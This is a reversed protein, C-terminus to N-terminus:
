KILLMKQTFIKGNYTMQVFYLGSAKRSGNFTATYRGPEKYGDVLVAMRKGIANYVYIKVVGPKALNYQFSTSPNFPNPYNPLLKSKDPAEFEVSIPDYVTEAGDFDIQILKYKYTGAEELDTDIYSYIQKNTTTGKGKIFAIESWIENKQQRQLSFGYNEFESATVWELYPYNKEESKQTIENFSTLTVPLPSNVNDSTGLTFQDGSGLIQDTGDSTVKLNGIPVTFLIQDGVISAGITSVIEFDASSNSRRLLNYNFANTPSFGLGADSFDFGVIINGSLTGTIEIVWERSWRADISPTSGLNEDSDGLEIGDHGAMIYDGDSDLSGNDRLVLGANQAIRHTGDAGRGIGILDNEFAATTFLDGTISIGYKSSLYNEILQRRSTSLEESFVILEYLYGNYDYTTNTSSLDSSSSFGGLIVGDSGTDLTASSSSLETTISSGNVFFNTATVNANDTSGMAVISPDSTSTTHDMVRNGSVRVALGNAGGPDELFLFYGEGAATNPALGFAANTSANTLSTPQVVSIVTRGTSGSIVSPGDLYDSSTTSFDLYANSGSSRYVPNSGFNNQMDANNGSIDRWWEVNEGDSASAGSTNEVQQDAALWLELSSSGDVSGVGAPGTSGINDNDFITLTHTTPSTTGANTAGDITLVITEDSEETGDDYITLNITGETDGSSIVLPSVTDLSYDVGSGSATSAGDVSFTIETDTGNASTLNLTITTTGVSESISSSSLEFSVDPETDDDNITYTHQTNSGLNANSPSSLTVIITESNENILDDNVSITIDTTTNGATITATGSSLRYDTGSGDATGGTVEYNVETDNSNDVNNLEVQLDVSTTSESNSSSTNTFQIKRPNDDDNILYTITSPSVLTAGSAGSLTLIVTESTEVDTDNVFKLKSSSGSTTGSGIVIAEPTFTYDDFETATGTGANSIDVTVNSASEYNLAVNISVNSESEFDGDTGNAFSVERKIAAITIFDGDNFTVSGTEYIDGTTNVLPKFTAGNTFDGDPDIFVGYGTYGSPLTVGALDAKINITQSAVGTHDIRWERGIKQASGTDGNPTESTSFSTSANDHGILAFQGDSFTGAAISLGLIDSYGELHRDSSTTRGIGGVDHPHNTDFSYYDNSISIDYKSSLYNELIQRRTINLEESYVIVEFLYGNYDYQSDKTLDALSSFGGLIVGDSSTNMTVNSSSVQTTMESGNTYFDTDIVDANDASQLGIITPESTSTTYDMVENGSVRLSLGSSSGVGEIFLNYGEGSAVDPALGIASNSSSTTLSTPQLVTVLTRSGTGSIVSSGQLYDSSTTSFDIYANDGSSRYVPNAGDTNQMDKSNGSLDRWWEVSEGDAASGSSTNEVDEDGALWLELSSSGDVSGVGGPGRSGLEDDDNITLTHQSTAGINANTVGDVNIIITEPGEETADEVITFEIDGTTNGATITLPSTTVQTYDSGGGSATSSGNISFTVEVDSGSSASLFMGVNVTTNGETVTSTPNSFSLDPDSENDNITYTHTTNTGLNSNTPNSLEIIITEDAESILDDNVTFDLTETTNGSAISVTGDALTFDTGSGSATGGTVTYDATTTNLGDTTNIEVTISVSTVNESDDSLTSSFQIKRPNDDDNISFEMTTQDGLSTGSVNTLSFDITETLETDVDNVVSLNSSSESTSGASFTITETTFSYDTGSGSASGTGDDVIDVSVSGTSEFSLEITFTPSTTTEFIEETANQFSIDRDVAVVTIYDGDNLTLNEAEYTSGSVNSVPHFTAGDTFDDDSDVYIGYDNFGSPLSFGSLNLQLDIVESAVGTLDVRWERGIKQAKTNGNPQETTSFTTNGGNHGLMAFTGDAFDSAVIQLGIEASYSELYTDSSTTRGIGAVMNGHSGEYSFYDNSITLGYKSALYNEVLQRQTTNLEESFAIIEYIYGNFDYGTDGSTIPDINGGTAFGGILVGISNTNLSAATQSVVTTVESGNAFLRSDTVNENSGSGGSFLTPVSTSTTYDFLKNGSVRLGVGNSGGPEEIFFGYGEGSNDNPALAWASNTTANSISTPMVVTFFTRGTTGTVVSSGDLYASGGSFDIYIEGGSSRFVPYAGFNNTVDKNNGSQDEWTQINDGDSASAASTNQVGKEADLWLELTSTGDDAGVGAPGTQAYLLGPGICCLILSSLLM